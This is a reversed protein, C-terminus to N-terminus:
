MKTTAHVDSVSVKYPEGTATIDGNTLVRKGPVGEDPMEFNDEDNFIAEGTPRDLGPLRM